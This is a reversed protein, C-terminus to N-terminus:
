KAPTSSVAEGVKSAGTVVDRWDMIVLGVAIGIGLVLNNYIYQDITGIITFLLTTGLIFLAVTFLTVDGSILNKKLSIAMCMISLLVFTRLLNKSFMIFSSDNNEEDSNNNCVAM